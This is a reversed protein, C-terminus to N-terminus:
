HRPPQKKAIIVQSPIAFASVHASEVVLWTQAAEDFFRELSVPRCGGLWRPRARGVTRLVAAVLRQLPADGRGWTAVAFLGGPELVRATEAIVARIEGPPMVDLVYASVVRDVSASDLPLGAGADCRIAAARDHWSAIRRNTEDTMTDSIDLGTYRCDPALTRALLDRALKGTGCGIEVVHRAGDLAAGRKLARIAVDEYWGQRDQRVGFDDYFAKIEARSLYGSAPGAPRAEAGTGQFATDASPKSM